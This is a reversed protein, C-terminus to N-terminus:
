SLNLIERALRASALGDSTSYGLFLFRSRLVNLYTQAEAQGSQHTASRDGNYVLRALIDAGGRSASLLVCYRAGGHQAGNASSFELLDLYIRDVHHRRVLAQFQELTEALCVENSGAAPPTSHPKSPAPTVAPRADQAVPFPPFLHLEAPESHEVGSMAPSTRKFMSLSLM